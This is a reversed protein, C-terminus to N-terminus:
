VDLNLDTLEISAEGMFDDSGVLDKDFVQLTIPKFPNDIHVSFHEDWKPNTTKVISKTQFLKDQGHMCKLYPDSTGSFYGVNKKESFPNKWIQSVTGGRDM